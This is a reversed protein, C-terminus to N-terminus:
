TAQNLELWELVPNLQELVPGPQGLVPRLGDLAQDHGAPGTRAATYAPGLGQMLPRLDPALLRAEHLTPPLEDLAPRLKM